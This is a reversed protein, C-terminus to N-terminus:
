PWSPSLILLLPSPLYFSVPSSSLPPFPSLSCFSLHLAPYQYQQCWWWPETCVWLSWCPWSLSLLYCSLSAPSSFAFVSLSFPLSSPFISLSLLFPCHPIPPPSPPPPRLILSSPTSFVPVIATNAYTQICRLSRSPTHTHTNIHATLEGPSWALLSSDSWVLVWLKVHTCSGLCQRNSHHKRCHRLFWCICPTCPAHM